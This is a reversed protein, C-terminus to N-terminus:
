GYGVATSSSRNEVAVGGSVVVLGNAAVDDEEREGRSGEM